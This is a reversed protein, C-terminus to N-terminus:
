IRITFAAVCTSFGLVLVMLASLFWVGCQKKYKPLFATIFGTIFCTLIHFFMLIMIGGWGQKSDILRCIVCYVLVIIINIGVINYNIKQNENM